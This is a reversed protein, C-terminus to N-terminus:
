ASVGLGMREHTLEPGLDPSSAQPSEERRLVGDVAAVERLGKGQGGDVVGKLEVGFHFGNPLDGLLM